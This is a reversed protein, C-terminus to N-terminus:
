WNEAEKQLDEQSITRGEKIAKESLEVRTYFEDITMPKLNKHSKKVPIELMKEIKNIISKDNLLMLREILNLKQAQINM